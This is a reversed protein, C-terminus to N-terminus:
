IILFLSLSLIMNKHIFERIEDQSVYLGVLAITITILTFIFGTNDKTRDYTKEVNNQIELAGEL